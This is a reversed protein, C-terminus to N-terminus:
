IHIYFLGDIYFYPVIKVYSNMLIYHKNLIHHIMENIKGLANYKIVDM